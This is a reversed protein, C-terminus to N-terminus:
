EDEDWYAEAPLPDGPRSNDLHYVPNLVGQVEVISGGDRLIQVKLWAEGFKWNHPMDPDTGFELLFSYKELCERKILSIGFDTNVRDPLQRIWNNHNVMMFNGANMMKILEDLSNTPIIQDCEWTFWADYDKSIIEKRIIERSRAVREDVKQEPPLELHELKYNTIGYKACYGKVKEMYNLGPSNDVLFLDAPTQLQLKAVNQLWREMSYDKCIHIPTGILIKM